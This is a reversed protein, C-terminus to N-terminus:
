LGEIADLIEQANILHTEQEDRSVDESWVDWDEYATGTYQINALLVAVRTVLDNM